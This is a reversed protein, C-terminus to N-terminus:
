ATESNAKSDTQNSPINNQPNANAVPNDASLEAIVRKTYESLIVRNVFLDFQEDTFTALEPLLKEVAGGRKCLRNTRAKREEAKEQQVLQKRHNELKRIQEEVDIRKETLTKAM